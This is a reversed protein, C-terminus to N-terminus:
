AGRRATFSIEIDINLPNIIPATAPRMASDGAEDVAAVSAATGFAALAL